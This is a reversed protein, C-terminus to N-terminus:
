LKNDLLLKHLVLFKEYDEERIQEIFSKSEKKEVLSTNKKNKGKNFNMGIEKNDVLLAGNMRKKIRNKSSINISKNMTKTDKNKLKFNNVYKNKNNNNKKNVIKNEYSKVTKNKNIIPTFTCEEIEKMENEKKIEKLKKIKKENQEKVRQFLENDNRYISKIYDYKHNIYKEGNSNETISYSTCNNKKYEPLRFGAKNRNIIPTLNYANNKNISNIFNNNYTKYIDTSKIKAKNDRKSNSTEATKAIFINNRINKNKKTMLDNLSKLTTKCKIYTYFEPKFSFNIDEDTSFNFDESNNNEFNNNKIKIPKIKVYNNIIKKCYNKKNPHSINTNKNDNIRNKKNYIKKESKEKNKSLYDIRQNILNIEHKSYINLLHEAINNINVSAKLNIPNTKSKYYINTLSDDKHKNIIQSISTSIRKFTIKKKNISNKLSKADLKLYDEYNSPYHFSSDNSKIKRMNKDDNSFYHAQNNYFFNKKNKNLYINKNSEKNNIIYQSIDKM